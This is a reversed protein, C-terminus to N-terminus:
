TKPVCSVAINTVAADGMLGSGNQTVTCVDNAPQTLVSVGYTSGYAVAPLTFATATATATFTGGVSGNTLVLGESTLGTITGGIAYSNLSCFVGVDIAALGARAGSEALVMCPRIAKLMDRILELVFPDDDVVLISLPASTEM